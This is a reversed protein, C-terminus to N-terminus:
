SDNSYVCVCMCVCVCVCVCVCMAVRKALKETGSDCAWGCSQQMLPIPPPVRKLDCVPSKCVDKGDDQYSQSVTPFSKFDCNM